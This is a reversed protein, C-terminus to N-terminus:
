LTRLLLPRSPLGFRIPVDISALPVKLMPVLALIERCQYFSKGLPYYMRLLRMCMAKSTLNLTVWPPEADEQVDVQM